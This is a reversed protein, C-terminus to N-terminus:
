NVLKSQILIKFIDANQVFVASIFFISQFSFILSNGSHLHNGFHGMASASDHNSNHSAGLIDMIKVTDSKLIPISKNLCFLSTTTMARMSVVINHWALGLM